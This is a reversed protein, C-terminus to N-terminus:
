LLSTIWSLRKFSASENTSVWALEIQLLERVAQELHNLRATLDKEISDIDARIQSKQNLDLSTNLMLMERVRELHSQLYKQLGARSQSNKALQDILDLSRGKKKVQEGRLEEVKQSADFCVSKWKQQVTVLFQRVFDAPDEPMWGNPLTSIFAHALGETTHRSAWAVGWPYQYGKEQEEPFEISIYTVLRHGLEMHAHKFYGDQQMILDHIGFLRPLQPWVSEKGCLCLRSERACPLWVCEVDNVLELGFGENQIKKTIQIWTPRKQGLSFWEESSVPKLDALSASLLLNVVNKSKAKLAYQLPINGTHDKCSLNANANILTSVMEEDGMRCAIHLPTRGNSDTQNLNYGAQLLIRIPRLPDEKKFYKLGEVLLHLSLDDSDLLLKIVASHEGELAWILPTKSFTEQTDDRININVKETCLLFSRVIEEDGYSAAWSLWNRGSPDPKNPMPLACVLAQLSQSDWDELDSSRPSSLRESRAKLFWWFSTHGQSDLKHPDAKKWLLAQMIPLLELEAALSFPTRGQTDQHDVCIEPITLMFNVTLERNDAVALALPTQQKADESNVDPNLKVIDELIRVTGGRAALAFPTQGNIDRCNLDLGPNSVILEVAKQRKLDVAWTLATWGRADRSNIDAKAELLIELVEWRKFEIALLLPQRARASSKAGIVFCDVEQLFNNPPMYSDFSYERLCPWASEDVANVNSGSEILVRTMEANGIETAISLPTRGKVKRHVLSWDARLLLCITIIDTQLIAWILPNCEIRDTPSAAINVRILLRLSEINETQAAIALLTRGDVDQTRLDIDSQSLLYSVVENHQTSIAWAIPAWANGDALNINANSQILLKVHELRGLEAAVSLPTRGRNDRLDIAVGKNLLLKLSDTRPTKIAFFISTRGDCIRFNLDVKEPQLLRELVRWESTAMALPSIGDVQFNIDLFPNSLYTELRRINKKLIRPKRVVSTIASLFDRQLRAIAEQDLNDDSSLSAM